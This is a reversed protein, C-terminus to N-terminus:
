FCVVHFSCAPQGVPDSGCPWLGVTTRPETCGVLEFAHESAGCASESEPAGCRADLAVSYHGAACGEGVEVTVSTGVCSAYIRDCDCDGDGDAASSGAGGDPEDGVDADERPEHGGVEATCAAVMLFFLHKMTSLNECGPRRM